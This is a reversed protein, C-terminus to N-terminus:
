GWRGTLISEAAMWLSDSLPDGNEYSEGLCASFTALALLTVAIARPGPPAGSGARAAILLQEIREVLARTAAAASQQPDPSACLCSHVLAALSAREETEVVFRHFVTRAADLSNDARPGEEAIVYALRAAARDALAELLAEKGSFHLYLTGKAVGVEAAVAGM